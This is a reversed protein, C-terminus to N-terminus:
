GIALSMRDRAKALGVVKAKQKPTVRCCIVTSAALGLDTFQETAKKDALIIALTAGRIIVSFNNPVDGVFAGCITKPHLLNTLASNCIFRKM